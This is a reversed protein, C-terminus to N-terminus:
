QPVVVPKVWALGYGGAKGEVMVSADGSSMAWAASRTRTLVRFHEACGTYPTVIVATGIPYLENWRAAEQEAMVFSLAQRYSSGRDAMRAKVAAKTEPTLTM